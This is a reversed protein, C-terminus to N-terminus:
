GPLQDDSVGVLKELTKSYETVAALQDKIKDIEESSREVRTDTDVLVPLIDCRCSVHLPPTTVSDYKFSLPKDATGYFTDGKKFWDKSLGVTKGNMPGCYECVRDDKATLWQKAEVVGSEKYADLTGEQSARLTETRAIRESQTKKFEGFNSRINREIEAISSGQEIGQELIGTLKLEDTGVVSKVFRRVNAQLTERLSKSPIYAGKVDLLAYTEAATMAGIQELLPTFLDVGTEIELAPDFLDFAKKLTKKKGVATHLNSISKEEIDTLYKDVTSKFNDYSNDVLKMKKDHHEWVQADSFIPHENHEVKVTKGVKKTKAKKIAAYSIDYLKKYEQYKKTFGSKRLHKKYNVMKVPEPVETPDFSPVRERSFEDGGEVADYGLETRAENQSIIDAQVLAIVDATNAEDDEPVPNEFGLILNDGYRPILFENLSDVIRQMKPKIVSQKWSLLSAEANARNVDEVIGLSSPTNKFMAMIKDRMAKEIELFQMERASQQVTIPKLGNGLVLTKFANRVGSYTRKMDTTIRQVDDRTLRQDSSLTLNPVAGNKFFQKIMEQALNDTDIDLAAAEVVSKGRYPNAPNPTKIHIIEEPEYRIVQEKGKADKYKFDYAIVEYNANSGGPVITVKDPQLLFLNTINAGRGEVYIFADGTLELYVAILYIGQSTTTFANFRDLTDLVPHTVVEQYEVEGARMGAQFLQFDMKSIEEALATVNAFVWGNFSKILSDSVTKYNSLAKDSLDVFAAGLDKEVVKSVVKEIVQPESDKGTKVLGIIPLTVKM